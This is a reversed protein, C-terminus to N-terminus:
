MLRMRRPEAATIKTRDSLMVCESSRVPPEAKPQLTKMAMEAKVFQPKANGAFAKEPTLEQGERGARATQRNGISRDISRHIFFHRGSEHKM